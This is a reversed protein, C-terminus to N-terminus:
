NKSGKIPLDIMSKTALSVGLGALLIFSDMSDFIKINKLYDLAILKVIALVFAYTIFQVNFSYAIRNSVFKKNRIIEIIFVVLAPATYILIRYAILTPWAYSPATNSDVKLLEWATGCDNITFLVSIMAFLVAVIM